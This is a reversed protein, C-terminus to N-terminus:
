ILSSHARVSLYFLRKTFSLGAFVLRFNVSIGWKSLEWPATSNTKRPESTICVNPKVIDRHSKQIKFTAKPKFSSIHWHLDKCSPLCSWSTMWTKRIYGAASHRKLPISPQARHNNDPTLNKCHLTEHTMTIISYWRIHYMIPEMFRWIEMQYSYYMMLCVECCDCVIKKSFSTLGVLDFNIILCGSIAVLIEM